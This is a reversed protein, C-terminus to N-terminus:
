FGCTLDREFVRCNVRLEGQRVRSRAKRNICVQMIKGRLGDGARQLSSNRSLALWGNFELLAEAEGGPSIRSTANAASFYGPKTTLLGSRQHGYM